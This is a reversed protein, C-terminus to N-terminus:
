HLDRPIDYTPAQSMYNTGTICATVTACDGFSTPMASSTRYDVTYNCSSENNYQIAVVADAKGSCIKPNAGGQFAPGTDEPCSFTGRCCQNTCPVCVHQGFTALSESILLAMMLLQVTRCSAAM